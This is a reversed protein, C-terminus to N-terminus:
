FLKIIIGHLIVGGGVCFFKCVNRRCAKKRM